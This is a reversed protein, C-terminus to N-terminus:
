TAVLHTTLRGLSLDCRSCMRWASIDVGLETSCQHMLSFATTWHSGSWTETIKSCHDGSSSPSHENDHSSRVSSLSRSTPTSRPVVAQLTVTTALSRVALM